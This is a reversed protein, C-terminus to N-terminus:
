QPHILLHNSESGYDIVYCHSGAISSPVPVSTLRYAAVTNSLKSSLQIQFIFIFCLKAQQCCTAIHRACLRCVVFCASGPIVPGIHSASIRSAQRCVSAVHQRSPGISGGVVPHQCVLHVRTTLVELLDDCPDMQYALVLDKNSHKSPWSAQLRPQMSSQISVPWSGIHRVWSSIASTSMLSLMWTWFAMLFRCSTQTHNKM